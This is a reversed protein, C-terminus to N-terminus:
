VSADAVITTVTRNQQRFCSFLNKLIDKVDRRMVVYLVVDFLPNLASLIEVCTKQYISFNCNTNNDNNTIDDIFFKEFPLFLITYVCLVLALIGLVRRKEFPSLSTKSLARWTGVFCFMVLPYPLLLAVSMIWGEACDPSCLKVIIVVAVSVWGTVSVLVSTRINQINRYWFAHAIMIYRDASITVMFFVNVQLGFIYIFRINRVIDCPLIKVRLITWIPNAFIQILDSILLNIVYVPAVQGPKVQPYLKCVAFCIGPFAISFIVGYVILTINNLYLITDMNTFYCISNNKFYCTTNNHASM